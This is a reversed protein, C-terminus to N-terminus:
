GSRHAARRKASDAEDVSAMINRKTLGHSRRGPADPNAEAWGASSPAVAVAEDIRCARGALPEGPKTGTLQKVCLEVLFFIGKQYPDEAPRVNDRRMFRVYADDLVSTRLIGACSSSM